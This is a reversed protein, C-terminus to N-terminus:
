RPSFEPPEGEEVGEEVKAGVSETEHATTSTAALRTPSSRSSEDENVSGGGEYQVSGRRLSGAPVRILRAPNRALIPPADGIEKARALMQRQVVDFFRQMDQVTHIDHRALFKYLAIADRYNYLTIAYLLLLAALLIYPLM